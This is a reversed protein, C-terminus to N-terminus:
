NMSSVTQHKKFSFFLFLVLGCIFWIFGLLLSKKKLPGATLVRLKSGHERLETQLGKVRIKESLCPTSFVEGDSPWQPAALSKGQVQM